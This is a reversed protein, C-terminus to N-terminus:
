PGEWTKKEAALDVGAAAYSAAATMSESGKLFERNGTRPCWHAWTSRRDYQSDPYAPSYLEYRGGCRLCTHQESM